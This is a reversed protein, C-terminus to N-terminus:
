KAVCRSQTESGRREGRIGKQGKHRGEGACSALWSGECAIVGNAQM